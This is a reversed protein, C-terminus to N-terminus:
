IVKAEERLLRALTSAQASSDGDLMKCSPRDPPLVFDTLNVKQDTATVGLAALAVEKITKKKAKMIGPLSAYRPTNLGKNAAVLCPTKLAILEKTGGEVEREVLVEGDKFEFKTVVSAHPIGLFEATMQPVAMSNDDIASKGMFVLQAGGSKLEAALAKAVSMNDLTDPADIVTAEDAGMALATRLRESVRAKPGVSIATIISEPKAAKLKLAEEIAFEDYPNVVFKVGAQDISNGAIKIKTETDPVEKICVFINM